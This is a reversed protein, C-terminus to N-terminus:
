WFYYSKNTTKTHILLGLIVVLFSSLSYFRLAHRGCHDLCLILFVFAIWALDDVFLRLQLITWFKIPICQWHIKKVCADVWMTMYINTSICLIIDHYSKIPHLYESMGLIWGFPTSIARHLSEMLWMVVQCAWPTWILNVQPQCLISSYYQIDWLYITLQV